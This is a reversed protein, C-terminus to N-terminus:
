IQGRFSAWVIGLYEYIARKSRLLNESSPIFAWFGKKDPGRIYNSAAAPIPHMGQKKFLALSRHMHSASTVLLFEDTGLVDKLYLAEDKTDRSQDEIIMSNKDVGLQEALDAMLVAEPTPDFISGGSLVLRSGPHKKHLRIGEILRVVSSKNLQSTVSIAPDTVHGGGLVVIYEILDCSGTETSLVEYKLYDEELPTLMQSSISSNSLALLLIFAMTMMVKGTMQKKTFWLYYLGCASFLIILPVPFFLNAFVKKFLFM